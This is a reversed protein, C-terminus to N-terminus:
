CPPLCLLCRLLFRFTGSMDIRVFSKDSDFLEKALAKALETKGVGTPGLFLFSAGRSRAALGARSRLVADAVAAVAAHQGVVREHLREGLNLLREQEALGLRTVPIGTWRAVVTAVDEPTVVDSLMANEPEEAALKALAADLEALAGYRLDAVRPLDYRAEADRLSALTADRKTHLARLADLRAKEMNYQMELPALQESVNSSEALVEALRKQSAADSENKLAQEEVRLRMLQQQLLDLKEPRSEWACRLSACAEDVVDIASDPLFRDIYREALSAAVVLARDLVRVGHHAEFKERLAGRLIAVTDAVSPEPVNIPTFRREFAADKEIYKRYEEMTTAGICRLEGRALAPKLLNAADMAGDTRGAGLVTHIQSGRANSYLLCAPAFV